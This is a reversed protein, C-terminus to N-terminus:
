FISYATPLRYEKGKRVVEENFYDIEILHYLVITDRNYCNM